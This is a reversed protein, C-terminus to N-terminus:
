KAAEAAILLIGRKAANDPGPEVTLDFLPAVRGYRSNLVNNGVIGITEGAKFWGAARAQRFESGIILGSVYDLINEPKLRGDLVGTRASFIASLFADAAASNSAAFEVGRGFSQWDPEAGPVPDQAKAIFSHKTLLAFVEGTAYTQFSDIRGAKIRAWKSHTGPLVLTRDRDLGFGVIQTEEGRMVDPFPKAAPDRMGPLFTIVAGNQLTLKRTGAALEAVGGPTDVYPVEVWGNRSTIMGTALVPLPGHASFWEGVAQMLAAEFAGDKVFQIGGNSSERTDLTEGTESVLMARLSSTGWDLIISTPTPM